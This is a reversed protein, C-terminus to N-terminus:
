GYKDEQRAICRAVGARYGDAYGRSYDVNDWDGEILTKRLSCPNYSVYVCCTDHGIRHGDEHGVEYRENYECGTIALLLIAAIYKHM